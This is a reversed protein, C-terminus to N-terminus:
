IVWRGNVLLPVRSGDKQVGTVNLSPGGVMFDVHTISHNMGAQKKEDPSMEKGRVHNEAYASGLAFHCSATEDFLTNKPWWRWRAWGAPARM